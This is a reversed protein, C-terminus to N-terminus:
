LPNPPSRDFRRRVLGGVREATTQKTAKLWQIGNGEWIVKRVVVKDIGGARRMVAIVDGVCAPVGANEVAWDGQRLKKWKASAM